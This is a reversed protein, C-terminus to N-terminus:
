AGSAQRYADGTLAELTRILEKNNSSHKLIQAIIVKLASIQAELAEHKATTESCFRSLESNEDVVAQM